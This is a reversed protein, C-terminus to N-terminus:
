TDPLVGKLPEPIVTERGRKYRLACTPHGLGLTQRADVGMGMYRSYTVDFFNCYPKLEEVGQAEFLKVAACETFELVGDDGGGERATYVWDEPYRRERSRAAQKKLFSRAFGSLAFRGGLRLLFRPFPRFFGDAVEACVQVAEEATKGRAKMPRFLAIMWGCIVIVPTFGNKRGGVYPLEPIIREFEVRADPIVERAFADGHRRALSLTMRKSVRDFGRM